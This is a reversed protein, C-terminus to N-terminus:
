SPRPRFLSGAPRRAAQMRAPVLRVSRPWRGPDALLAWPLGRRLRRASGTGGYSDGVHAPDGILAPMKYNPGGAARILTRRGRGAMGKCAAGLYKLLCWSLAIGHCRDPWRRDGAREVRTAWLFQVRRDLEVQGLDLAGVRRDGLRDDRGMRAVDIGARHRRAGVGPDHRCAVSDLADHQKARAMADRHASQRDTAGGGEGRRETVNGQISLRDLVDEGQGLDLDEVGGVFFLVAQLDM